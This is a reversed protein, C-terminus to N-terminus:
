RNMTDVHTHVHDVCLCIDMCMHVYMSCLYTHLFFRQFNDKCIASHSSLEMRSPQRM